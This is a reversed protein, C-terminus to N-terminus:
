SLSSDSPDMRRMPFVTVLADDLIVAAGGLKVNDEEGPVGTIM